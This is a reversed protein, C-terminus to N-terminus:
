LALNLAGIDLLSFIEYTIDEPLSPLGKNYTMLPRHRRHIVIASGRRKRECRVVLGM